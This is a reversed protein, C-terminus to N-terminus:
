SKFFNQEFWERVVELHITKSNRMNFNRLGGVRLFRVASHLMDDWVQASELYARVEDSDQYAMAMRIRIQWQATPTEISSTWTHMQHISHYYDRGKTANRVGDAIALYTFQFQAFIDLNPPLPALDGPFPFSRVYLYM